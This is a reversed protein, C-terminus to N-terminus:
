ELGMTKKGEVRYPEKLTAVSFWGAADKGQEILPGLDSILGNVAFGHGGYWPFKPYPSLRHMMPISFTRRLEQVGYYAALAAGANGASPM